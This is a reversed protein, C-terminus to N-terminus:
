KNSRFIIWGPLSPEPDGPSHDSYLMPIVASPAGFPRIAVPRDHSPLHAWYQEQTHRKMGVLIEYHLQEGLHYLRGEGLLVSLPQWPFYVQNPHDRSFEFAQELFNNQYLYWGPFRKLYALTFTSPILLALCLLFIVRCSTLSERPIQLLLYVSLLLLFYIAMAYHNVDGGISKAAVVGVPIFGIAALMFGFITRAQISCRLLCLWDRSPLWKRQASALVLFFVLLQISLSPLFLM